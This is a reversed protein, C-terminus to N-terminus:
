KEGNIPTAYKWGNLPCQFPHCSSQVYRTILWTPHDEFCPDPEDDSVYCEVGEPPINLYWPETTEQAKVKAELSALALRMDSIEANIDM